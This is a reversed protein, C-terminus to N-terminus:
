TAVKARRLKANEEDSVERMWKQLKDVDANVTRAGAFLSGALFISVLPLLYLASNLGQARFPLQGKADLTDYDVGEAVAQQRTFYDSTNGIVVPGLAGGFVYMAAFYLAMATARLSPEIVDQITSYVTAYYVYMMMCGFGFLIGFLMWQGATAGLAFYMTPVALAIAAAAVLMRGNRRRRIVADGLLGGIMMGPIGALGYVAMTLYGAQSPSMGHVRIVLPTLFGGIAYMNFNHLAGSVIIWRM